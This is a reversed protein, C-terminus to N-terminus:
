YGHFLFPKGTLHKMRVSRYSHKGQTMVTLGVASHCSRAKGEINNSIHKLKVNHLYEAILSSFSM